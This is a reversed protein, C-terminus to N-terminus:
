FCMSFHILAAAICIYRRGRGASGFVKHHTRGPILMVTRSQFSKEGQMWFMSGSAASAATTKLVTKKKKRAQQNNTVTCLAAVGGPPVLRCSVRVWSLFCRCYNDLRAFFLPQKAEASASDSSSSSSSSRSVPLFGSLSVSASPRFSPGPFAPSPLRAPPVCPPLPYGCPIIPLHTPM